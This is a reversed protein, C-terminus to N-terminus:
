LSDQRSWTILYELRVRSATIVYRTPTNHFVATALADLNHRTRPSIADFMLPDVPINQFSLLYDISRPIVHSGRPAANDSDM